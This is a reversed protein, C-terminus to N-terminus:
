KTVKPKVSVNRAKLKKKDKVATKEINKIDVDAFIMLLFVDYSFDVLHPAIFCNMAIIAMVTMAAADNKKARRFLFRTLLAILSIFAIAGCRIYVKIYSNDIFFYDADSVTETSGGYGHEYFMQGFFSFPHQLIAEKTMEFRLYVSLFHEHIFKMLANDPDFVICSLLSLAVFIVFSLVWVWRLKLFAKLAPEYNFAFGSVALLMICLCDTKAYCFFYLFVALGIFVSVEYWKLRGNRLWFYLAALFFWHAAYDTPYVIGFSHRVNVDPVYVLDTIIGFCSLLTTAIILSTGLAVIVRTIKRFDLNRAGIIFLYYVMLEPFFSNTWIMSVIIMGIEEAILITIIDKSSKIDFLVVKIWVLVTFIGIVGYSLQTVILPVSICMTKTFAFTFYLAFFFTYIREWTIFGLKKALKNETLKVRVKAIFDVIADLIQDGSLNKKKATSEGM